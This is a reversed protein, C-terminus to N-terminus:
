VGSFKKIYPIKSLVYPLLWSLFVTIAFMLPFLLNSQTNYPLLWNVVITHSFYMGYSCISLSTIAKGVSNNRVSDFKNLRDMSMIFFDLVVM